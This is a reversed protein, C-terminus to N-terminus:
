DDKTVLCSLSHFSETRNIGTLEFSENVVSSNLHERYESSVPLENKIATYNTAASRKNDGSGRAAGKSSVVDDPRRKALNERCQKMTRQWVFMFSIGTGFGMCMGIITGIGAWKWAEEREDDDDGDTAKLQSATAATYYSHIVHDCIVHDSFQISITSVHYQLPVLLTVM